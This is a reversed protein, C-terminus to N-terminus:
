STLPKFGKSTVRLSPKNILAAKGKKKSELGAGVNCILSVVENIKPTRYENNEFILKEPFVSGIIRQKIATDSDEYYKPLSQLLELCEDVKGGHNEIGQKLKLNERELKEIVEDIEIKMEKYETTSFEGDLMMDKANKIRMKQKAIDKAIKEIEARGNTNTQKLKDKLISAFLTMSATNAVYKSIYTIFGDNMIQAKKREKCGKACHYYYFLGGLRGRSASASLNRGCQPCVLFGRLPFEDRQTNYKNPINRKRGSIIDQVTYFTQEDIIPEHVGDVWHAVEDKYTPVFVKGIYGKNHLLMWFANRSVKLGEKNMERRLEEISYMGTAYEAFAKKVLQEKLGGEPKIIAKDNANRANVYGRLCAGLWNGQKKGRRMGHFVNLSRRDNDVEPAALYIALMIKSEPIEFDLPQEMAQPEVGLKKLDRITIYAEAVNRSFRDWKLFLIVDTYNRNKKVFSLIKQWEPRDFSKGSADDHHFGVIELNQHECFKYLKDKQDSPSYGNNQEDTSVRTYIIVKKKM